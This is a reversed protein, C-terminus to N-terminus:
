SAKGAAPAHERERRITQLMADLLAIDFPKSLVRVRVNRARELEQAYGTVLIVPLPPVLSQASEALDLGNRTGPMHIDSIVVDFAPTTPHGILQLAADANFLCTVDHGMM